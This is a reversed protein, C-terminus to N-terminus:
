SAVQLAAEAVHPLLSRIDSILSEMDGIDRASIAFQPMFPALQEVSLLWWQSALIKAQMAEDFRYRIVRAPNGVAIAFDPVDRTVVAGAGVVAGIGIRKCGPLILASDGIWADHEVRLKLDYEVGTDVGGNLGPDYFMPHMAIRDMPKSGLTVRVGHAISVYRGVVVGKPFWGPDLCPGYSYAGVQVGHHKMLLTRVTASLFAGGEMRALKDLFRRAIKHRRAVAPYARALYAAFRSTHLGNWLLGFPDPTAINM